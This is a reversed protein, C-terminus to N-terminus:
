FQDTMFMQPIHDFGRAMLLLEETEQGIPAEIQRALSRLGVWEAGSTCPWADRRGVNVAERIM